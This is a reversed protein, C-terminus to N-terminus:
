RGVMVSDVWRWAYYLQQPSNQYTAGTAPDSVIIGGTRPNIGQLVIFHGVPGNSPRVFAIIKWGSSLTGYLEQPSGPRGAQWARLKYYQLLRALEQTSAPRDQPWGDLTAAIQVQSQSIGAQFLVDQVCAAWCWNMARQRQIANANTISFSLLLVFTALIYKKM